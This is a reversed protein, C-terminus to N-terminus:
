FSARLTVLFNALPPVNSNSGLNVNGGGGEGGGGALGRAEPDHIVAGSIHTDARYLFGLNRAAVNISARSAGVRSAFSNPLTYTASVERLRAFAANFTGLYPSNTVVNDIAALANPVWPEDLDLRKVFVESTFFCTHRCSADTLTRYHEGQWDVLGYLRLNDFLTITANFNGEHQPVGFGNGWQVLPANLCSVPAGGRDFGDGTGGDCRTLVPDARLIGSKDPTFGVEVV